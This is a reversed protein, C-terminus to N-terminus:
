PVHFRQEGRGPRAVPRVNGCPTDFLRLMPLVSFALALAYRVPYAWTPRTQVPLFVHPVAELQSLLHRGVGTPQHTESSHGWPLGALCVASSYQGAVRGSDPRPDAM